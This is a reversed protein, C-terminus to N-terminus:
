ARRSAGLALRKYVSALADLNTEFGYHALVEARRASLATASPPEAAFRLIGAAIATSDVPVLQVTSSWSAAAAGIGGVSTAVIPMEAAAAELLTRPLGEDRSSIVFIDASAMEARVAGVDGAGRFTVVEELGLDAAQRELAGRVPGSGVVVLRCGPFTERVTAVAPLLLDYGKSAVLRGVVLISPRAHPRGSPRRVPENWIPALRPPVLTASLHRRTMEQVMNASVVRREAALRAFFSVALRLGRSKRRGVSSAPVNFLDGHVDMLFPRRTLMAVVSAAVWGWPEGGNLVVQRGASRASAVARLGHRVAFVVWLFSQPGPGRPSRLVFLNSERRELHPGAWLCTAHGLREGLAAWGQFDISDDVDAQRNGSFTVVELLNRSDIVM